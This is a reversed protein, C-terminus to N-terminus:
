GTPCPYKSQLAVLLAFGYPLDATKPNSALERLMELAEHGNPAFNDPPCYLPQQKKYFLTSNAWNIGNETNGFMLEWIKRNASDASEYAQLASNVDYEAWATTGVAILSGTGIAATAILTRFSVLLAEEGTRPTIYKRSRRIADRSRMGAFAQTGIHPSDRLTPNSM